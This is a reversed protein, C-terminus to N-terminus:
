IDNDMNYSDEIFINSEEDPNNKTYDDDTEEDESVEPPPDHRKSLEAILREMKEFGIQIPVTSKGSKVGVARNKSNSESVIIYDTPKDDIYLQAVESIELNDDIDKHIEYTYSIEGDNETAIEHIWSNPGALPQNIIIDIDNRSINELQMESFKEFNYMFYTPTSWKNVGPILVGTSGGSIFIPVILICTLEIAWIVWLAAGTSLAESNFLLWTGYRNFNLVDELFYQPTTSLELFIEFELSLNAVFTNFEQTYLGAYWVAFWANWMVYMIPISALAAAIKAGRDNTIKLGSKLLILTVSMVFGCGVVALVSFWWDWFAHGLKVYLITFLSGLVIYILFFAILKGLELQNKEMVSNEEYM